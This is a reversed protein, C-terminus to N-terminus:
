MSGGFTPSSRIIIRTLKGNVLALSLPFYRVVLQVLDRVNCVVAYIFDSHEQVGDVGKALGPYARLFAAAVNFRM